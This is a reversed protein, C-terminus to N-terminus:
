MIYGGSDRHIRVKVDGFLEQLDDKATCLAIHYLHDEELQRLNENLLKVGQTSERQRSIFSSESSTQLTTRVM